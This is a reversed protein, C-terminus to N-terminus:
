GVVATALNGIATYNEPPVDGTDAYFHAADIGERRLRAGYAAIEDDSVVELEGAM